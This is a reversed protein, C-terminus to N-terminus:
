GGDFFLLFCCWCHRWLDSAPVEDIASSVERGSVADFVPGDKHIVPDLNERSLICSLSPDDTGNVPPRIGNSDLVAVHHSRIQHQETQLRKRAHM